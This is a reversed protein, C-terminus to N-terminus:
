RTPKAYYMPRGSGKRELFRELLEVDTLIRSGEKSQELGDALNMKQEEPVAAVVDIGLETMFAQEMEEFTTIEDILQLKLAQKPTYVRGDALAKVQDVAMNRGTAVVDVFQEFSEDVMSQLIQQQDETMKVNASGMAKNVGSSINIQEIGLDQMFKTYDDLTLIVGISGTLGNRNCFIRDSAMAIYYGGSCAERAMYTWIPRGTKEKYEMLKLYLEDSEYIGGGPSDVYLLLGKNEASDALEDIYGLTWQHDYSYYEYDYYMDGYDVIDGVVSVQGIFDEEPLYSSDDAYTDDYYFFDEGSLLSLFSSNQVLSHVLVSSGCIAIFAATAAALGILQKKNM